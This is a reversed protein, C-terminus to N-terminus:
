RKEKIGLPEGTAKEEQDGSIDVSGQPDKNDHIELVKRDLADRM